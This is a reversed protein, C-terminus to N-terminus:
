FDCFYYTLFIHKFYRFDLVESISCILQFLHVKFLLRRVKEGPQVIDRKLHAVVYGGVLNDGDDDDYRLQLLDLICKFGM